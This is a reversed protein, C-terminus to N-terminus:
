SDKAGQPPDNKGLFDILKKYDNAQKSIQDWDPKAANVGEKIKNHLGSKKNNVQKMIEEIEPTDGGSAPYLFACIAVGTLIKLMAPSRQLKSPIARRKM